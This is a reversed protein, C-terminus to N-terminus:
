RRVTEYVLYGGDELEGLIGSAIEQDVTPPATVAVLEGWPDFEVECGHAEVLEVAMQVVDAGMCTKFRFGCHGSKRIVAVLFGAADRAVVDGKDIDYVHFPVCMIEFVGNGLARAPLTEVRGESSVLVADDADELWPSLGHEVFDATSTDIM